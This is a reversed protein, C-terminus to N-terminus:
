LEKREGSVGRRGTDRVFRYSHKVGQYLPYCFYALFIAIRFRLTQKWFFPNRMEGMMERRLQRIEEKSLHDVAQKLANLYIAEWSQANRKRGYSRENLECRKVVSKVSLIGEVKLKLDSSNHEHRRYYYMKEPTYVASVGKQVLQYLFCTDEGVILDKEFRLKGIISKKILRGGIGRFIGIRQCEEKLKNQDVLIWELEKEEGAKGTILDYDRDGESLYRCFAIEAKKLQLQECLKELLTPVIWDDSDMFFVYEGEAMDLAKNRATSVGQHQQCDYRIRSDKQVFERCIEPVSDTSGDDILLVEFDTYTQELVSTICERLYAESNFIPIIVSIMKQERDSNM